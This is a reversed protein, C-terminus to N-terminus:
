KAIETKMTLYEERPLEGSAYRENIIDL